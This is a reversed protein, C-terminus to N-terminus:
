RKPIFYTFKNKDSARHILIYMGRDFDYVIEIALADGPDACNKITTAVHALRARLEPSRRNEDAALQELIGPELLPPQPASKSLSADIIDIGRGRLEIVLGSFGCDCFDERPALSDCNDRHDAFPLLKAVIDEPKM